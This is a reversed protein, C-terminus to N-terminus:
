SFAGQRWLALMDMSAAILAHLLAGGAISRTRLAFLGLVFGALVAGLAEPFPKAYHVLGYPLTAVAIANLGLKEELSFLLFGRFFFELAVFRLSRALEWLAIRLPDHGLDKALPYRLIFSLQSSAVYLVPMMVLLVGGYLVLSRKTLKFRMGYRAPSERFVFGIVCLPIILYALMGWFVWYMRGLLSDEAIDVWDKSLAGLTPFGGSFVLLVLCVASTWVAWGTRRDADLGQPAPLDPIPGFIKDLWLERM